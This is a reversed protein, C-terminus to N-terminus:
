VVDAPRMSKIFNQKEPAGGRVVESVVTGDSHITTRITCVVNKENKMVRACLLGNRACGVKMIYENLWRITGNLEKQEAAYFYGHVDSCIPEGDQRLGHILRRLSRESVGIAKSLRRGSVQNEKGSHYTRLYESLDTRIM